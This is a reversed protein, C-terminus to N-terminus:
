LVINQSKKSLRLGKKTDKLETKAGKKHGGVMEM